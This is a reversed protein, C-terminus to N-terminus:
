EWGNIKRFIGENYAIEMKNNAIITLREVQDELFRKAEKSLVKKGVELLDGDGGYDFCCIFYDQDDGGDWFGREEAYAVPDPALEEPIIINSPNFKRNELRAKIDENAIVELVKLAKEVQEGEGQSENEKFTAEAYDLISTINNKDFEQYTMKNKREM